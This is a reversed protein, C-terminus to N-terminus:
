AHNRGEFIVAYGYRNRKYFVHFFQKSFVKRKAFVFYVCKNSVLFEFRSLALRIFVNVNYGLNKIAVEIKSPQKRL